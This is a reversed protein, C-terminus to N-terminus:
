DIPEGVTRIMQVPHEPDNTIVTIRANLLEGSLKAPDFSVSVATKKGKKVSSPFKSITLSKEPTSIDRILLTTLGNNEIEFNRMIKGSNKSFRGFDLTTESASCRPAQKLQGPTMGSFDERVIIITSVPFTTEATKTDPIVTLSDTVFGWGQCLDSTATAALLFQEGPPVAQPRVRVDIYGPVNSVGPFITDNTPNYGRIEALAVGGKLVEGFPLVSTSFRIEGAKVPYRGELSNQAGIVTGRVRLTSSTGDSTNVYVKKEFRGPRGKADYAVTVSLTDGPAILGAPYKPTTCGCNARASVVAIPADATNVARFTCYVKGMDEHFAGFDHITEIWVPAGAFATLALAHVALLSLLSRKM